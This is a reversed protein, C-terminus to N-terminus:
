VVLRWFQLPLCSRQGRPDPTVLPGLVQSWGVESVVRVRGTAFLGGGWGWGVGVM